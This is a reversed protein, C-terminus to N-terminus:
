QVHTIALGTLLLHIRFTVCFVGYECFECHLIFIKGHNPDSIIVIATVYFIFFTYTVCAWIDHFKQLWKQVSMGCM